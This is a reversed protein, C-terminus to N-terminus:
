TSIMRVDTYVTYVTYVYSKTKTFLALHYSLLSLLKLSSFKQSKNPKDMIYTALYM